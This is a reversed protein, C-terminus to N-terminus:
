TRTKPTKGEVVVAGVNEHPIIRTFNTKRDYLFLFQGTTGIVTGTFIANTGAMEVRVTRRKGARIGKWVWEAYEATFAFSWLTMATISIVRMFKRAFEQTRPDVPKADPRSLKKGLWRAGGMYATFLPIPLLSIFVVLPERFPVLLFDAAQAYYLININFRRYLWWEYMMGIAILLVYIVTLALGSHERLLERFSSRPEADV